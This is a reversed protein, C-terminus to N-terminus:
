SGSLLGLAEKLGDIEAERRAKKEAYSMTKTECQPKLEDLYAEVAQLEQTTMGYDDQTDKTTVGLSKMESLSGKAEAAKAAKAVKSELMLKDFAEQALSEETESEMLLKTFDEGSMELIGIIVSAADSKSGGLAPADEEDDEESQQGASTQVFSTGAYFDKLVKIAQEIAAAADKFDKSAKLYTAHEEQRITTAEAMGKDLEAIEAELEKVSQELEASRTTAKDLRSQLKEARMTKDAKAKKSKGLEQDCFAKQTAEEQAEQLLKDIMEEILGKIKAFPDM